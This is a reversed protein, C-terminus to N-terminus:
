LAAEFSMKYLRMLHYPIKQGAYHYLNWWNLTQM